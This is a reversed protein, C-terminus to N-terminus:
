EGDLHKWYREPCELIGRTIQYHSTEELAISRLRDGDLSLVDAGPFTLLIPSHTAIVLQTRGTRVAAAM